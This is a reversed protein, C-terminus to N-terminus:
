QASAAKAIGACSFCGLAQGFFIHLGSECQSRIHIEHAKHPQHLAAAVLARAGNAGGDPQGAVKGVHPAKYAEDFPEAVLRAEGDAVYAEIDIRAANDTVSALTTDGLNMSFYSCIGM